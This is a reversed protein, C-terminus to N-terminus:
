ILVGKLRPQLSYQYLEDSVVGAPAVIVEGVLMAIYQLNSFNSGGIGVEISATNSTAGSGQGTAISSEAGADIRYRNTADSWVHRGQLILARETTYTYTSQSVTDADLRRQSFRLVGGYTSLGARFSVDDTAGISFCYVRRIDSSPGPQIKAAIFVNLETSVNQTLSTATPLIFCHSTGNFAIADVGNIGGSSVTPQRATTSQVANRNNGSKDAWLSIGTDITITSSDSADLWLATSIQLPTWLAM